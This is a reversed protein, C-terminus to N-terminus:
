RSRLALYTNKIEPVYKYQRTITKMEVNPFLKNIYYKVVKQSVNKDALFKRYRANYSKYPEINILDYKEKTGNLRIIDVISYQYDFYNLLTNLYLWDYTKRNKCERIMYLDQPKLLENLKLLKM